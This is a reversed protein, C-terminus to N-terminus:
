QMNQKRSIQFWWPMKGWLVAPWQITGQEVRSVTTNEYISLRGCELWKFWSGEENQHKLKLLNDHCSCEGTAAKLSKRIDCLGNWSISIPRNVYFMCVLMCSQNIFPIVLIFFFRCQLVTGSYMYKKELQMWGSQVALLNTTIDGCILLM